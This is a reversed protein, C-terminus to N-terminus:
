GEKRDFFRRMGIAAIILIIGIVFLGIKEPMFGFLLNKGASELLVLIM